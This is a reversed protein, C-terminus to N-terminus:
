QIETAEEEEDGLARCTVHLYAFDGQPPVLETVETIECTQGGLEVRAGVEPPEEQNIMAGPHQGDIIVYSVKYRM